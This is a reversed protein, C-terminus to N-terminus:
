RESIVYLVIAITAILLSVTFKFQPVKYFPIKGGEDDTVRGASDIKNSGSKWVKYTQWGFFTTGLSTLIPVIWLGGGWVSSGDSFHACSTLLLATFITLLYKM